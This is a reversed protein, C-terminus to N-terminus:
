FCGSIPFKKSNEKRQYGIKHDIRESIIKFTYIYIYIYTLGHGSM